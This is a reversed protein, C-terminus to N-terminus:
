PGLHAGVSKRVFRPTASQMNFKKEEHHSLKQKSVAISHLVLGSIEEGHWTARSNFM